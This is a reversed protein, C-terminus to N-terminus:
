PMEESDNSRDSGNYPSQVREAENATIREKRKEEGLPHGLREESRADFSCRKMTRTRRALLATPWGKM